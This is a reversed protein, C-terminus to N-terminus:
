TLSGLDIDNSTIENDAVSGLDGITVNSDPDVIVVTGLDQAGTPLLDSPLVGIEAGQGYQYPENIRVTLVGESDVYYYLDDTSWKYQEYRLTPYIITHDDARGAFFDEGYTFQDFPAQNSSLLPDNIILEDAENGMNVKAFYLDGTTDNRRLGYFYPETRPTKGLYRYDSM